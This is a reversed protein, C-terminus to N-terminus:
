SNDFYKKFEDLRDIGYKSTTSRICEELYSYAFPSLVSYPYPENSYIDQLVKLDTRWNRWHASDLITKM